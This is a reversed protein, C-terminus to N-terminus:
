PEARFAACPEDAPVQPVRATHERQLGEEGAGRGPVERGRAPVYRQEFREAVDLHERLFGAENGDRADAKGTEIRALAIKKGSEGKM